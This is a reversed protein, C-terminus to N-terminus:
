RYICTSYGWPEINAPIRQMSGFFHANKLLYAKSLSSTVIIEPLEDKFFEFSKSYSQNLPVHISKLM